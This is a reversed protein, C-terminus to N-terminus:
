TTERAKARVKLLNDLVSVPSHPNIAAPADLSAEWLQTFATMLQRRMGPTVHSYRAQVSGDEHGLREDMLKPPTGFEEMLTKHTHRLGHPTLGPAIPLWCAEARYSANRGRAPVGPWPDALVPVPHADNPARRPYWGTAAPQFLWAAFGTRRWHAAFERTAGTRVYGLEAAAV